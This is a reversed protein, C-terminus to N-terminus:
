QMLTFGIGVQFRKFVKGFTVIFNFKFPVSTYRNLCAGTM